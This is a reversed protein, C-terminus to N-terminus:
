DGHFTRIANTRNYGFPNERNRKAKKRLSSDMEHNRIVFLIMEIFLMIVGSIVGSIVRRIDIDSSSANRSSVRMGDDKYPLIWDFLAGSFFYMFAGFSLPAVIMNLGISTAYMMSKMTADDAVKNDLNSTIKKYKQEEALLRLRQMRKEHKIREAETCHNSAISEFVLSVHQRVLADELEQLLREQEEKPNQSCVILTKMAKIAKLPIVSSEKDELSTQHLFKQAETYAM